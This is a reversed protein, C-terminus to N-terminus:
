EFNFKNNSKMTMNDLRNNDKIITSGVIGTEETNNRTSYKIEKDDNAPYFPTANISWGNYSIERYLLMDVM